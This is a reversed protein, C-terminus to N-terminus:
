VPKICSRLLSYRGKQMVEASALIHGPRSALFTGSPRDPGAGLSHAQVTCRESKARALRSETSKLPSKSLVLARKRTLHRLRKTRALHQVGEAHIINLREQTRLTTLEIRACTTVKERAGLAHPNQSNEYILVESSVISIIRKEILGFVLLMASAELFIRPQSQDDFIRNLASTDLYVNM